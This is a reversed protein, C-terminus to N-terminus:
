HPPAFEGVATNQWYQPVASGGAGEEARGELPSVPAGGDGGTQPAGGGPPGAYPAGGYPAAGYPAGGYPVGGGARGLRRSHSQIMTPMTTKMRTTPTMPYRASGEDGAMLTVTIVNWDGSLGQPIAVGALALQCPNVAFALWTTHSRNLMPPLKVAPPPVADHVMEVTLEAVAPNETLPASRGNDIGTFV